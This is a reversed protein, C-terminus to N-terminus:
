GKNISYNALSSLQSLQQTLFSQTSQLSAVLTDLANFQKRYRAEIDTLRSQLQTRRSDIDKISANIADVGTAFTGSEGLFASTLADLQFAYGQGFTVAGRDGTTTGEILLKLGNSDGSGSLYQGSGTADAGGLTGAVDTGTTATPLLGFLNDAANGNVSIKSASGYRNSTILLKGGTTEQPAGFLTALANGGTLNVASTAADSSSKVTLVGETETVSVSLGALGPDANIQKQIEAALGAASYTGATLTIPNTAPTGDVSVNLTDNSGTAITTSAGLALSGKSSGHSYGATVSSGASALASYGNIRSQVEAALEARTYVRATLKISGTVGDITFGLTDNQGGGSDAITLTSPVASGLLTGQTALHSINVAYRGPKTSSTSAAVSVLSDSAKGVAAFLTSVDKSPDALVKALKSSDLALTGDKQFSVGIDSLTTLGGGTSSLPTTLMSRMRSQMTLVSLNGQLPGSKKTTADYATADAIAKAADNYAKVFSSVASKTGSDDRAVTLTTEIPDSNSDLASVKLLNLTVGHIADTITNSPKTVTLGNIVVEADSAATRETMTRVGAPDFNFVSLDGSASSASIKLENAAGSDNSSLVLVNGNTGGKNVISASVGIGAANIADAIGALTNSSSSISVTQTGKDPNLTFNGASLTGFQFTLTGSGVTTTAAAFGSSSLTNAKALSNVAMRYTGAAAITSASASVVSSDSSTATKGSFKGASNLSAVSSQLSAVAGKLTGLASIKAQYKAEETDLKTLPASEVSMLKSVLTNVDLGSGIGPSALGAM